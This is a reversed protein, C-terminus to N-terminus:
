PDVFRNGQISILPLTKLSPNNQVPRVPEDQYWPKQANLGPLVIFVALLIVTTVIFNRPRM